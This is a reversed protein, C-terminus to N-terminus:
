SVRSKSISTCLHERIDVPDTHREIDAGIHMFKKILMKAFTRTDSERLLRTLFDQRQTSITRKSLVHVKCPKTKALEHAVKRFYDKKIRDLKSKVQLIKNRTKMMNRSTRIVSKGPVDFSSNANKQRGMKKSLKKLKKLEKQYNDQTIVNKFFGNSTVLSGDPNFDMWLSTNPNTINETKKFDLLEVNIWWNKGDYSFAVSKLAEGQPLYGKEYLKIEGIKPLKIRDHFIKVSSTSFRLGETKRALYSPFQPRKSNNFSRSFCMRLMYWRSFSKKSNSLAKNCLGVDSDKIFEFDKKEVNFCQHLMALPTEKASVQKNYTYRYWQYDMGKNFVFRYIGAQQKLAEHLKKSKVILKTRFSKGM